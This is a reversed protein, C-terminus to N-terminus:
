PKRIGKSVMVMSSVNEDKTLMVLQRQEERRVEAYAQEVTLFPQSRLVDARIKDLRDDLGDLFKYVRDEQLLSNHNQIDHDCRM